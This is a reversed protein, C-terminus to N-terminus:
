FPEDHEEEVWLEWFAWWRKRRMCLYCFSGFLSFVHVHRRNPLAEAM